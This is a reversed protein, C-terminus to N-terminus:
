PNPSDSRYGRKEKAARLAQYTTKADSLHDYTQFMTQGHTGIRGWTRVLTIEGFLTRELSLRYFRRMNQSPDIHTM